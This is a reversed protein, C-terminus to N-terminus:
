LAVVKGQLLVRSHSVLGKKKKKKKKDKKKSKKSTTKKKKRKKDSRVRCAFGILVM